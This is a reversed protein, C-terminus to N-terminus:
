RLALIIGAILDCAGIILLTLIFLTRFQSEMVMMIDVFGFFALTFIGMMVIGIMILVGGFAAAATGIKRRNGPLAYM